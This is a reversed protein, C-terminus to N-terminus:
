RRACLGGLQELQSSAVDTSKTTLRMGRADMHTMRAAKHSPRTHTYVTPGSRKLQKERGEREVEKGEKNGEEM